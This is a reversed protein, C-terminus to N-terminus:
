VTARAASVGARVDVGAALARVPRCPLVGVQRAVGAVQLPPHGEGPSRHLREVLLVFADDAVGGVHVVAVVDAAGRAM